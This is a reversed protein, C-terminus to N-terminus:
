PVNQLQVEMVLPTQEGGTGLWNGTRESRLLSFSFRVVSNRQLQAADVEVAFSGPLLNNIVLEANVGSTPILGRSDAAFGYNRYRWLGGAGDECWAVPTDVMFFRKRPSDSSFQESAAFQVLQENSAPAAATALSLSIATGRLPGNGYVMRSSYPYVAVYGREGGVGSPFMVARFQSAATAVPMTIYESSYLVPVLEICNQGGDRFTRVSNPLARRIERGLKESAAAAANAMESRGSQALWGDVSRRVFDSSIVALIGTLMIVMILEILTFGRVRCQPGCPILLM